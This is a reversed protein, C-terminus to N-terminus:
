KREREAFEQGNMSADFVMAAATAMEKYLTNHIYGDWFDKEAQENMLTEIAEELLFLLKSNM